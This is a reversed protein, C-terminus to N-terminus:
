LLQLEALRSKLLSVLEPQNFRYIDPIALSLIRKQLYIEPFRTAIESRHRQEMVIITDAGRLQSVSVPNNSYLGASETEFRDAFIQAATKSRNQGQNCLFLLKM